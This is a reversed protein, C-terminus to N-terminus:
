RYRMGGARERLHRNQQYLMAASPMPAANVESGSKLNKPQFLCAVL